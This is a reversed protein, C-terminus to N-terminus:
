LIIVERFKDDSACTLLIIKYFHQSRNELYKIKQIKVMGHNVLDPIGHHSNTYLGPVNKFIDKSICSMLDGFKVLHYIYALFM